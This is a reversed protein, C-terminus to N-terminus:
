KMIVTEKVMCPFYCRSRLTTRTTFDSLCLRSEKCLDTERERPLRSLGLVRSGVGHRGAEACGRDPSWAYVCGNWAVAPLEPQVRAVGEWVRRAKSRPDSM